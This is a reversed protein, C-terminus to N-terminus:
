FYFIEFRWTKKHSRKEHVSIKGARRSRTGAQEERKSRRTSSREIEMRRFSEPPLLDSRVIPDGSHDRSGRGDVYSRAQKERRKAM